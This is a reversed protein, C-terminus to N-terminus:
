KKNKHPNRRQGLNGDCKTRETSIKGVYKTIVKDLPHVQRQLTDVVPAIIVQVDAFLIINLFYQRDIQIGRPAIEKKTVQYVYVYM